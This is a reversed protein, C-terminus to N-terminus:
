KNGTALHKHKHHQKVSRVTSKHIEVTFGIGIMFDESCVEFLIMLMKLFITSYLDSM